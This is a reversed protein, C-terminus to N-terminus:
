SKYHISTYKSFLSENGVEIYIAGWQSESGFYYVDEPRDASIGGLFLLGPPHTIGERRVSLLPAGKGHPFLAGGPACLRKRM